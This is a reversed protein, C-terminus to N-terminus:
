DRLTGWIVNQSPVVSRYSGAEETSVSSVDWQDQQPDYRMEYERSDHEGYDVIIDNEFVFVAHADVNTPVNVVDVNKVPIEITEGSELTVPLFASRMSSHKNERWYVEGVDEVPDPYGDEEEQTPNSHARGGNEKMRQHKSYVADLTRSPLMDAIEQATHSNWHNALTQEESTTWDDGKQPM